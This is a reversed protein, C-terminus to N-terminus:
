ISSAVGRLVHHKTTKSSEYELYVQKVHMSRNSMIKYGIAAVFWTGVSVRLWAKM